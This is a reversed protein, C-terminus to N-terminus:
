PRMQPSVAFYRTRIKKWIDSNPGTIGDPGSVGALGRSPDMKGGPLFKNLDVNPNATAGTGYGAGPDRSGYGYSGGSGGGRGGYSGKLIDANAGSGGRGTGGSAGGGGGGTGGGGLGGGGGGLNGKALQNDGAESPTGMALEDGGMLDGLGDGFASADSLTSSDAGSGTNSVWQSSNDISGCRPDAPNNQCICTTNTAAVAPDNCSIPGQLSACVALAPNQACMQALSSGLKGSCAKVSQLMQAAGMINTLARAQVNQYYLCAKYSVPFSAKECAAQCRSQKMGCNAQFGGLAGQAAVIAQGLSSCAGAAGSMGGIAQATQTATNAANIMSGDREPDCALAAAEAASECTAISSEPPVGPAPVAAGAAAAQRNAERFNAAEEQANKAVAAKNDNATAAAQAQNLQNNFQLFQANNNGFMTRSCGPLYPNEECAKSACGIASPNMRCIESLGGDAWVQATVFTVVLLLAARVFKSNGM